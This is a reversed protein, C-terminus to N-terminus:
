SELRRHERDSARHSDTANAVRQCSNYLRRVLGMEGTDDRNSARGTGWRRNLGRRRMARRALVGAKRRRPNLGATAMDSGCM